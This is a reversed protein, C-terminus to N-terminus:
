LRIVRVLNLRVLTADRAVREREEVLFGLILAVQALRQLRRAHERVVHAVAGVAFRRPREPRIVAGASGAPIHGAVLGEGQAQEILEGLEAVGLELRRALPQPCPDLIHLDRIGGPVAHQPHLEELVVGHGRIAVGPRRHIERAVQALLLLLQILVPLLIRVLQNVEHVLPEGADLAAHQHAALLVVVDVGPAARDRGVTPHQRDIGLRGARVFELAQGPLHHVVREIGDIVIAAGGLSDPFAFAAAAPLLVGVGVFEVVEHIGHGGEGLPRFSKGRATFVSEM